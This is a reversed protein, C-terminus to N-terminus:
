QNIKKSIEILFTIGNSKNNSINISGKHYKQIIERTLFLGYGSGDEKKSSVNKEFILNNMNNKVEDRVLDPIYLNAIDIGGANDSYSFKIRELNDDNPDITLIIERNKKSRSKFADISNMFLNLFAHRLWDEYGEFEINFEKGIRLRIEQEELRGQVLKKSDELVSYLNLKSLIKEPPRTATKIKEITKQLEDHKISLKDFHINNKQKDFTTRLVLLITMCESMINRVEHRVSQAIELGTILTANQALEYIKNHNKHYNNFNSVSVGIGHAVTELGLIEVSNFYYSLQTALSLIGWIKNGIVIPIMVIQKLGLNILEPYDSFNEGLPTQHTRATSIVIQFIEPIKKSFDFPPTEGFGIQGTVELTQNEEDYQRLVILSLRSALSIQKLVNEFYEDKNQQFNIPQNINKLLNSLYLNNLVNNILSCKEEIENLCEKSYKKVKIFYLLGICFKEKSEKKRWIPVILRENNFDYNAKCEHIANFIFDDDEISFDIQTPLISNNYNYKLIFTKEIHDIVFVGVEQAELLEVFDLLLFDIIDTQNEKRLLEYISIKGQM